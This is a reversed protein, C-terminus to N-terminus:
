LKYNVFATAGLASNYGVQLAIKDTMAKGVFVGLGVKTGQDITGSIGSVGSVAKSYNAAGVELGYFMPARDFVAAAGAKMISYSNGMGYGVDLLLDFNAMPISYGFDLILGGGGLGASLQRGRESGIVFDPKLAKARALQERKLENLEAVKNVQKAAKAADIKKDLVQIYQKIKKLEVENNSVSAFAGGAAMVGILLFAFVKKM